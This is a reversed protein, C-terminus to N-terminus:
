APVLDDLLKGAFVLAPSSGATRHPGLVSGTLVAWTAEPVRDIVLDRAVDLPDM